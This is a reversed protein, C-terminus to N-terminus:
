LTGAGPVNPLKGYFVARIAALETETWDYGAADNPSDKLLCYAGMPDRLVAIFQGRLYEDIYQRWLKLNWLAWGEYPTSPTFEAVFTDL